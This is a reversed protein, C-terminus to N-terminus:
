FILFHIEFILFHIEFIEFHIEFKLFYQNKDLNAQWVYM